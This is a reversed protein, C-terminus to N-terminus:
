LWRISHNFLGLIFYYWFHFKNWTRTLTHAQAIHMYECDYLKARQTRHLEVKSTTHIIKYKYKNDNPLSSVGYSRFELFVKCVFGSCHLM